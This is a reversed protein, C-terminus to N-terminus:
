PKLTIVLFDPDAGLRAKLSDVGIGSSVVLTTNNITTTGKLLPQNATVISGIVPLVLQGGHTKGAVLADLQGSWTSILAPDHAFGITYADGDLLQQSTTADIGIFRILNDGYAYIDLLQGNLVEFGSAMWLAELELRHTQDTDSLIAFQGLPAELQSLRDVLYQRSQPTLTTYFTENVLDGGFVIVDPDHTNIASIVWAAYADGLNMWHTDSFYVITFEDFESPIRASTLTVNVPKLRTLSWITADIGILALVLLSVIVLLTLSRVKM